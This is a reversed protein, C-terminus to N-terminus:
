PSFKASLQRLVFSNNPLKRQWAQRLEIQRSEMASALDGRGARRHLAAISGWIHSLDLAEYLSFESRAGNPRLRGLLGEYVEIARAVKGTETEYDALAILAKEAESGAYIKEVPYLNLQRLRAFAMDLRRQAEALRGLRRLPYSSQVMLYIDRTQADTTESMHRLGHDYATLARAADSHRLIDGMAGAALALAERSTQDNPDQHALDDSIRFAREFTALAEESRGLTVENDAGLIIGLVMLARVLNMNQKLTAQKSGPDLVRVSEQAMKLAEDLDGRGRLSVATVSLIYGRDARRDFAVALESARSCLRLAEDFREMLMFHHPL